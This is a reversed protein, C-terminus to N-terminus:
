PTNRETEQPDVIIVLHKQWNILANMKKVENAIANVYNYGM